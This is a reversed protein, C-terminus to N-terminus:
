KPVESIRRLELASAAARDLDVETDQEVEGTLVAVFTSGDAWVCLSDDETPAHMIECSLRGGLPGPDFERRDSFTTGQSRAGQEVIRATRRRVQARFSREDARYRRLLRILYALGALIVLQLGIGVIAVATWM